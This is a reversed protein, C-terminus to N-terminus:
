LKQQILFREVDVVRDLVCPRLHRNPNAPFGFFHQETYPRTMRWVGINCYPYTYYFTYARRGVHTRQSNRSGIWVVPITTLEFRFRYYDDNRKHYYYYYISCWGNQCYRKCPTKKGRVHWFSYLFFCMYYPVVKSM